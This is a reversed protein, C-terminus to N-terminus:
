MSVSQVGRIVKINSSGSESTFSSPVKCSTSFHNESNAAVGSQVMYDCESIFKPTDDFLEIELLVSNYIANTANRILGSVIVETESAGQTLTVEEFSIGTVKSGELWIIPNEEVQYPNVSFYAIGVVLIVALSFGIGFLFGHILRQM